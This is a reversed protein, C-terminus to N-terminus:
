RPREGLKRQVRAALQVLSDSVTELRPQVGARPHVAFDVGAPLQSAHLRFAERILRKWRNRVVANGVRRSVSLGLRPWPVDSHCGYVILVGDAVSTRQRYVRNFDNSHRLRHEPRFRRDTMNPDNQIV